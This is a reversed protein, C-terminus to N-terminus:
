NNVTICELPNTVAAAVVGAVLSGWFNYFMEKEMFKEEGHKQKFHNMYGEYISFQICIFSIYTVLFPFAGQYLSTIGNTNIERALAKPINKYKYIHNMTQLRCKLLDYPFHILLTLSEALISSFFFVM